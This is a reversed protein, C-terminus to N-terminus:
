YSIKHYNFDKLIYREYYRRLRPIRTLRIMKDIKWRWSYKKIDSAFMGRTPINQLNPAKCRTRGSDTGMSFYNAHMRWSDDEQHYTLYQPWGKSGEEDNDILDLENQKNKNELSKM